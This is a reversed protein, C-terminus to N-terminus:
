AAKSRLRLMGLGLAVFAGGSIRNFLRVRRVDSFGRKMGRAVLVYFTHSLLTCVSFTATLVLFQELVPANRTLFQPFLASFFLISKPNTVAVLVGHGFLRMSARLGAAQGPRDVVAFANAGSRWQKVGLYILYAAGLVKLAIFAAASSTLVVGLGAMAVASVMFVGAANGFSGLMARSPGVSVSNSVALLVAPGPTFAMFLSVGCFVLWNSLHM